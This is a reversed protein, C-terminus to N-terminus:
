NKLKLFICQRQTCISLQLWNDLDSLCVFNDYTISTQVLPFNSILIVEFKNNQVFFIHVPQFNCSTVWKCEWGVFKPWKKLVFSLKFHGKVRLWALIFLFWFKKMGVKNKSGESSEIKGNKKFFFFIIIMM